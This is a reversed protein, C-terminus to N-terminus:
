HAVCVRAVMKMERIGIDKMKGRIDGEKKSPMMM